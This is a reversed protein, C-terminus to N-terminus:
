NGGITNLLETVNICSNCAVEMLNSVIYKLDADEQTNSLEIIMPLNVGTLITMNYDKSMRALLTSPSGGYVDVLCLVEDEKNLDKSVEEVLSEPEQSPLLSYTQIKDLSGVIMEASKILEEGFRGHTCVIIKRNKM